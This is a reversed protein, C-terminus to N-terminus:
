SNQRTTEEGFDDLADVPGPAERSQLTGPLEALDVRRALLTAAGLACVPHNNQFNFWWGTRESLPHKAINEQHRTWGEQVPPAIARRM